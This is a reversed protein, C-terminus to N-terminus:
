LRRMGVRPGFHGRNWRRVDRGPLGNMVQKWAREEKGGLRASIKGMEAQTRAAWYLYAPNQEAQDQSRAPTSNTRGPQLQASKRIGDPSTKGIPSINFTRRVPSRMGGRRGRTPTRPPPFTNYKRNRTVRTSSPPPPSGDAQNPAFPNQMEARQNPTPEVDMPTSIPHNTAALSPAPILTSPTERAAMRIGFINDSGTGLPTSSTAHSLPPAPIWESDDNVPTSASPERPDDAGSGLANEAESSDTRRAAELKARLGGGRAPRSPKSAEHETSVENSVLDTQQLGSAMAKREKGKDADEAPGNAKEDAISDDGRRRAEDVKIAINKPAGAHISTMLKARKQFAEWDETVLKGAEANLASDPNPQVLLCTITVLVDRLTLTPKWDRKLTDVCVAGSSPDVNPHFIQTRFHATPPATPYNSPMELHLKFVGASFPTGHPGALLIDLHSLDDPM